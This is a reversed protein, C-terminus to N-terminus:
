RPRRPFEIGARRRKRRSEARARKRPPGARSRLFRPRLVPFFPAFREVLRRRVNRITNGHVCLAQAIREDTWAPGDADAMLLINAHKIKYAASRGKRVLRKLEDREEATLRVIHKKNMGVEMMM